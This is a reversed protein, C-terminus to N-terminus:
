GRLCLKQNYRENILYDAEKFQEIIFDNEVLESLHICEINETNLLDNVSAHTSFVLCKDTRHETALFLKADEVCNLICLRRGSM